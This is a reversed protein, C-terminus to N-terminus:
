AFVEQKREAEERAKKAWKQVTKRHIGFAVGVQVASIGSMYMEVVEDKFKQSYKDNSYITGLCNNCEPRTCNLCMEIQEEYSM